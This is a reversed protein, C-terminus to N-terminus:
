GEFDFRYRMERLGEEAMGKRLDTEINKVISCSSAVVAQEWSREESPVMRKQRKMSGTLGPTPFRERFTRRQVQWHKDLLYGFKALNGHKWPEKIQYGIEKIRHLTDVVRSDEGEARRVKPPFFKM